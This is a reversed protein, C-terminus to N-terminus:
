NCCVLHHKVFSVTEAAYMRVLFHCVQNERMNIYTLARNTYLAQALAAAGDAGIENCRLGLHRLSTNDMLYQSMRALGVSGIHNEALNLAILM